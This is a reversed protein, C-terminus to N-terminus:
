WVWWPASSIEAYVLIDFLAHATLAPWLSGSLYRVTGFVIGFIFTFFALFGIDINVESFPSLFLCCKYGTHASASFLVSFSGSIKKTYEQLFGRFVLEEVSGILAATFAFFHISKPFLGIDLHRRYWVSLVIGMLVGTAILVMLNRASVSEGTIYRLESASKLNKSIIFGSLFLAVFSILRVPFKYHIFFAFIMLGLTCMIAGSLTKLKRQEAM